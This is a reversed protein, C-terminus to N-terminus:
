VATSNPTPPKKGLHLKTCNDLLLAFILLVALPFLQYRFAIINAFVSFGFNTLLLLTILLVTIAFPRLSQRFGKQKIFFYLSWGFYLNLFLFFYPYFFLFGGQFTRPFIYTVKNSFLGFWIEALPDIKPSNLNYVELKELPPIFYNKTNLLLYHRVFAMPHRKILWIGYEKFIPAAKAWAEISESSKFTKVIYQRLPAQRQQIFFNGVYPFLDRYEPPVTRFYNRAIQDLDTTQPTPFATSDEQISERFYLANNAWQWGGYIPPFQPVGSLKKAANSTFIIFPIILLPGLFIGMVKQLIPQKSILFGITAILPYYMANYRFTFAISFVVSLVVIHYWSSKYIIWLLETLWVLSLTLFLVDSSVYNSVYLNIPNLFFFILIIIRTRRSTPFCRVITQYLYFYAAELLFYQVLTLATASNSTWHFLQLFKSYGIPWINVDLNNVAADIYNYSDGFFDPFPYFFKFCVFQIALFISLLITQRRAFPEGEFITSFTLSLTHWSKLTLVSM